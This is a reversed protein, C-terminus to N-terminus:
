KTKLYVGNENVSLILKCSTNFLNDLFTIEEEMATSRLANYLPNMNGTKITENIFSHLGFMDIFKRSVFQEGKFFIKNEKSEYINSWMDMITFNSLM